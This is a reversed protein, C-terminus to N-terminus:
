RTIGDPGYGDEQLDIGPETSDANRQLRCDTLRPAKGCPRRHGESAHERMQREGALIAHRPNALAQLAEAIDSVDNLAVGAVREDDLGERARAQGQSEVRRN